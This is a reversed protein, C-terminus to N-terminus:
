ELKRLHKHYITYIEYFLGSDNSMCIIKRRWRNYGWHNVHSLSRTLGSFYSPHVLGCFRATPLEGGLVGNMTREHFFDDWLDGCFRGGWHVAALSFPADLASGGSVQQSEVFVRPSLPIVM